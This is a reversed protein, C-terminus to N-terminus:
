VFSSEFISGFKNEVAQTYFPMGWVVYKKGAWLQELKHESKLSLLFKEKWKDKDTLHAGKPEIFIQLYTKQNENKRNLFLVFDPEFPKGDEFNYIKFYRENRILYIEDYNKSLKQHLRDLYKVFYKEESTGFCDNFIYWNKGDLQLHIKTEAANNMSKGFEKDSNEDFSFNMRKDSIVDKLLYPTFVEGGTYESANANLKGVVQMLVNIGVYLKEDTTLEEARSASDITVKIKGLYNGDTVFQNVSKLEPFYKLLNSFTFFDLKNMAKRIIVIGLSSLDISYEHKVIKQTNKTAFLNDSSSFGSSVSVRYDFDAIVVKKPILSMGNKKFQRNLFLLGTKYFNSEKFDSKINVERQITQDALIGTKILASNLEQIYKVNYTCHYYLEECIRMENEIDRDFKRKSADVELDTKFPFYRAGRGILQAERITTEGPKNNKADRTDYLRVIDFLNLVDWGENLKDVAFIARFESGISELNNLAIQKVESDEKSNVSIIKNESFDEKLETVLNDLSIENKSFFDFAKNLAEVSRNTKIKKVESPKLKKIREVFEEQFSKSEAITKSKFLIIPKIEIKNKSFIKRRYQSLIIAQLCRDFLQESDTQLVVVDKSYGEVRFQKLPYDFIIRDKYKDVIKADSLDITATFELLINSPNSNFIKNVTTEWSIIHEIEDKSFKGEVTLDGALDIKIGAKTDVNIHHAEDSILVVKRNKFDDFTLSNEQPSNLNAHLGQVTSFAINIETGSGGQFNVVERIRIVKGNIEVKDRFLFKMSNSNLFNDKTKEIINSSNVFFLFNRYGKEYLYLILGAMILTKGSGTAMHFLLQNKNPKGEFEENFYKIFYQFAKEQYPRIEYKKTVNDLISAPLVVNEIQRKGFEDVLKQNLTKYEAM